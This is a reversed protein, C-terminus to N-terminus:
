STVLVRGARLAMIISKNQNKKETINILCIKEICAYM